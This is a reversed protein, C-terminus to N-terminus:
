IKVFFNEKDFIYWIGYYVDIVFKFFKVFELENEIDCYGYYIDVDDDFLEEEELKYVGIGVFFSEMVLVM